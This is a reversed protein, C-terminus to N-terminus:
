AGAQRWILAAHRGTVRDRRFSYFRGPDSHTCWQGGHVDRVDVQALGARALAPLDARYKSPDIAEFAAECGAIGRRMAEVVEPGVEFATAGICPGLFAVLDRPQVGARSCMARVTGQLVGAALGRWGAHAVGVVRGQRDALLVPLCDAITVCCVVGEACAIAADASLENANVDEANVVDGGHQLRIWRPPSPLFSRLRLRNEAVRAPDDGTNAGVNMGGRDGAGWAGTSVGGARTTILARVQKSVPWDPVIWDPDLSPAPDVPSGPSNM